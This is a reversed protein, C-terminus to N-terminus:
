EWFAALRRVRASETTVGSTTEVSELPVVVSAGTYLEFVVATSTVVVVKPTLLRAFQRTTWPGRVEAFFRCWLLTVAIGIEWLIFIIGSFAFALLEDIASAAPPLVDKIVM